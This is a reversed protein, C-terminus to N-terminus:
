RPGEIGWDFLAVGALAVVLGIWAVSKAGVSVLALITAIGVFVLVIGLSVQLKNM